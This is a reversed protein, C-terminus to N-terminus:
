WRAGALRRDIEDMFNRHKISSRVRLRRCRYHKLADIKCRMAFRDFEASLFAILILCCVGAATACAFLVIAELM